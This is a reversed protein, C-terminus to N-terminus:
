IGLLNKSCKNSQIKREFSQGASQITKILKSKRITLPFLKGNMNNDTLLKLPNDRDPKFLLSDHHINYFTEVQLHRRKTLIVKVATLAHDTSSGQGHIMSNGNVLYLSGRREPQDSLICLLIPIDNSMICSNMINASNIDINNLLM